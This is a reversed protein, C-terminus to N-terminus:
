APTSTASGVPGARRGGSRAGGSPPTLDTRRRPRRRPVLRAAVDAAFCLLAALALWWWLDTRRATLTAVDDAALVRGGTNAALPGLPTADAPLPRLAEGYPVALLGRSTRAADRVAFADVGPAPDPLPATFRWPARAELDLPTPTGHPTVISGEMAGVGEVPEGGQAEDVEVEGEAGPVLRPTLPDPAVAPEVYRAADAFLATRGAWGGAWAPDIGPTWAVVRGAGYQWQSLTPDPPHDKDQGLLVAQAGPKLETVVNGHLVPLAEGALDRVIPSDEGPTVGIKGHLRVPRAAARADKAFIKPLERPDVTAYFHGGTEKAIDQLLEFDADLGLAVTSVTIHEARLRPVLEAYTGKESIGDSLLVIHRNRERSTEIQGAGAALAKYINTGGEARIRDILHNVKAADATSTLRTLPVVTHPAVDFAIAGFQDHHKAVFATASRTAVRVMAIKEVGAVTESMSGSRDLVMELGLNRRQLNGPKLSGVPLAAQLPSAYYGGLSFSHPGGLVVLGAQGTRVADALAKARVDGLEPAAVDDLAVTDYRGFAAPTTPAEAPTAVTVDFGDGELVSTLRSGGPALVLARPARVVRVVAARADNGPAEDGEARVVVRYDHSGVGGATLSLLYPNDGVALHVSRTGRPEGDEYLSLTAPAAVTSRVNVEVPVPDGAHVAEPAGLRTVAADTGAEPLALVDVKVGHARAAAIAAPAEGRTQRGDAVVVVRGGDPTAAVAERVASELDVGGAGGFELARCHAHCGTAADAWRREVAEGAPDIGVSRQAVV